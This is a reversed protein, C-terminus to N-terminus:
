GEECKAGYIRRFIEREFILVAQEEKKTMTWTETGYTVVPRILTKCLRIKTATSLLRNRFLSVAAFYTRSGALTRRQIETQVSKIMKSVVGDQLYFLTNVLQTQSVRRNKYPYSKNIHGNTYIGFLEL